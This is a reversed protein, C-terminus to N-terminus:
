MSNGSQENIHALHAELVGSPEKRIIIDEIQKTFALTFSCSTHTTEGDHYGNYRNYKQSQYEDPYVFCTLSRLKEAFATVSSEVKYVKVHEPFLKLSQLGKILCGYVLSDCELCSNDQNCITTDGPTASTTSQYQDVLKYCMKLLNSIRESRAAIIAEVEFILLM